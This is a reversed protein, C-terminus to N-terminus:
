EASARAEDYDKDLIEQARQRGEADLPRYDCKSMADRAEAESMPSLRVRGRVAGMRVEQEFYYTKGAELTARLSSVNGSRSWVVHDGAPVVAAVYDRARTMGVPIDDVFAWFNIAGGMRAPRVFYVVAENAGPKLEPGSAQAGAGSTWLLVTALGAIRLTHM